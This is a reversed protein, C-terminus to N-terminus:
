LDPDRLAVSAAADIADWARGNTKTSWWRASVDAAM